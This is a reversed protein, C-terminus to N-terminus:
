LLGGLIELGKVLQADTPTSFNIRFYQSGQNPDANFTSGPVVAVGHELARKCFGPMDAGDPLRCLVFLGGQPPIYTVKGKLHRELGDITLGLKAAYIKRVKEIHAQMDYHTMFGLVIMQNLLPTHVDSAQKAVTIKPM